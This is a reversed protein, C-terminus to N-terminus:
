DQWLGDAISKLSAPDRVRLNQGDSQIVGAEDLRRLTRSLTESTLNLHSAIHKKLSPLQVEAAGNEATLTNILRATRALADRLTIDELLGVLSRVWLCMGAMIELCLQHNTKLARMFPETPLLLCRSDAIAQANAPCNFGGIAAVEAFTQGPSVLHLVHEKGSPSLKYIRVLGEAVIYVGPCPDGQRFVSQGAQVKEWKAMGELTALHPGKVGGFLPCHSLVDNIGNQM